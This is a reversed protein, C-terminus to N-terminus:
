KETKLDEFEANLVEQEKKAAEKKLVRTARYICYGYGVLFGVGTCVFTMAKQQKEIQKRAAQIGKTLDDNYDDFLEATKLVAEIKNESKLIGKAMEEKWSKM